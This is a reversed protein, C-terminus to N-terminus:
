KRYRSKQAPIDKLFQKNSGPETTVGHESFVATIMDEVHQHESISVLAAEHARHLAYPYPKTGLIHAQKLLAAQIHDINQSTDAVWAPIEVRALHPTGPLGVNLFFFHPALDDPFRRATPSVIKFIASRDGPESLLNDLLHRDTIGAYLRQQRNSQIPESIGQQTLELLRVILDSGPKDVYGLTILNRTKMDELVFMYKDLARTFAGTEGPEHYLELPGDTMSIAPMILDDSYGALAERELLDRQLAVMGETIMGGGPLFVSDYDLLLSHTIVQPTEGSGHKIIVLGVNIVCFEVQHHRSPNIQSGDAALVTLMEPLPPKPVVMNLPEGAPQACRLRADSALRQSILGNLEDLRNAYKSVLATIEQQHQSLVTKRQKAQISFAKLKKQIDVLNVPM